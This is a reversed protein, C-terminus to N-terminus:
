KINELNLMYKSSQESKNGLKRVGKLIFNRKDIGEIM